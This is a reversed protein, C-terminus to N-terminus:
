ITEKAVLEEMITILPEFIRLYTSESIGGIRAENGMYKGIEWVTYLEPTPRMSRLTPRLKDLRDLLQKATAREKADM